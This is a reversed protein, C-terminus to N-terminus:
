PQLSSPPRVKGAHARSKNNHTSTGSQTPNSRPLPRLAVQKRRRPVQKPRRPVQKPRRPIDTMHVHGSAALTWGWCKQPGGWNSSSAGRTAHRKQRGTTSCRHTHTHTHTRTHIHTRARSPSLPEVHTALLTGRRRRGRFLSVCGRVCM